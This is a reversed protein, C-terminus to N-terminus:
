YMATMNLELVAPVARHGSIGHIDLNFILLDGKEGINFSVSSIHPLRSSADLANIKANPILTLLRNEFYDRLQTIKAINRGIILM